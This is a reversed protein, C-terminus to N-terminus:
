CCSLDISPPSSCVPYPGCRLGLVAAWVWCNLVSCSTWSQPGRRLLPKTDEKEGLSSLEREVNDQNSKRKTWQFCLCAWSFRLAPQLGWVRGPVCCFSFMRLRDTQYLKQSCDFSSTLIDLSICRTIIIIFREIKLTGFCQVHFFYTEFSFISGWTLTWWAGSHTIYHDPLFDGGYGRGQPRSQTDGVLCCEM